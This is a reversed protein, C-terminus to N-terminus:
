RFIKTYLHYLSTLKAEFALMGVTSDASIRPLEFLATDKDIGGERTCLASRYGAEKTADIVKQNYKGRPYAISNINREYTKIDSLSERLESMLDETSIKPLERHTLSHSGINVMRYKALLEKVQNSSLIKYEVGNSLKLLDNEVRTPWFLTSPINKEELFLAIEDFGIYGDDLTLVIKKKLSNNKEKQNLFEDLSIIKYDNKELFDIQRKFDEFSVNFFVELLNFSHYMLIHGKKSPFFKEFVICVCFFINKIIKKM